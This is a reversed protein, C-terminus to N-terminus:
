AQGPTRTLVPVPEPASTGPPLEAIRAAAERKVRAVRDRDRLAARAEDDFERRCMRGSKDM